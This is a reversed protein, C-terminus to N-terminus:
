HLPTTGNESEEPILAEAFSMCLQQLMELMPAAVVRRQYRMAEQLEVETALRAFPQSVFHHVVENRHTVIQTWTEDILDRQDSTVRDKLRQMLPGMTEKSDIFVRWNAFGEGKAHTETGPVVLHPLLFKLRQEISQYLYLCRGLETFLLDLQGPTPRWTETM